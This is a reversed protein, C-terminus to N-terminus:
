EVLEFTLTYTIEHPVSMATTDGIVELPQDLQEVKGIPITFTSESGQAENIYKEGNVLMYDYNKSSWVLKVTAEGDIVTMEAPSQISAKGTGGEMSVSVQYVGDELDRGKGGCGSLFLLLTLLLFLLRCRITNSKM